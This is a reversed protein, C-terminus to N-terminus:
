GVGRSGQHQPQLGRGAATPVLSRSLTPCNRIPAPPPHQTGSCATRVGTWRRCHHLLCTHVSTFILPLVFPLENPAESHHAPFPYM